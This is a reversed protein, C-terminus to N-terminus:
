DGSKGTEETDSPTSDDSRRVGDLGLRSSIFISELYVYAATYLKTRPRPDDEYWDRIQGDADRRKGKQFIDRYRQPSIGTFHELAVKGSRMSSTSLADSHFEYAMSKPYPEIFVIREIGAAILHKACNHCPYTTVHITCDQVSRGLRAAEALASMEAHTMRGFETIDSIRATRLLKRFNPNSSVEEASNKIFHGNELVKLLDFVIRSTEVKNPEYRQDIDRAKHADTGWYNGGGPSPVENCGLSVIEGDRTTIAAGVQRSLDVSRLSAGRALYAAQEDKTPSIHNNGFLAHIFRKTELRVEEIGRAALFADGYQFVDSFRQGYDDAAENKDVEILRQAHHRIVDNTDGPTEGRLRNELSKRQSDSDISVSIQIFNRSYVARLLDIEEKRKIQRIIYAHQSRPTRYQATLDPKLRTENYRKRSERIKNVAIAAVIDNKGSQQRLYNAQAIKYDYSNSPHECSFSLGMATLQSEFYRSVHITESSYGVSRLAEILATQTDDLHVGIPAVLGFVLEPQLQETAGPELGGEEPNESM